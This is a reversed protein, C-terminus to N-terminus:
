LLICLLRTQKNKKDKEGTTQIKWNSSNTLRSDRVEVIQKIMGTMMMMMMMLVEVTNKEPIPYIHYLIM